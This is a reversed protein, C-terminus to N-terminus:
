KVIIKDTIIISKKRSKWKKNAFIFKDQVLFNVIGSFILAILNCIIVDFHFLREIAILFLMKIGFTLWASATYPILRTFYDKANKQVRYSWIWFYSISFNNLKAVEFSIIPAVIYITFYSDFIYTKFLWLIATDVVTGTM